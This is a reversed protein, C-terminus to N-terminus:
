NLSQNLSQFFTFYIAIVLFEQYTKFDEYFSVKPPTSDNQTNM